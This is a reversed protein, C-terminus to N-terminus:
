HPPKGGAPPAHPAPRPGGAHPPPAPGAPARMAPAHTVAPHRAAFHSVAPHSAAFHSVTSRHVYAHSSVSAHHTYVRHSTSSHAAAYSTRGRNTYRSVQVSRRPAAIHVAIPHAIRERAAVAHGARVPTMGIKGRMLSRAAIARIPHGSLHAISRSSISRNAVFGHVTSYRTVNRTRAIFDVTQARPVLFRRFDTDTFHNGGVFVWLDAPGVQGGYWDRYGYFSPGWDAFVLGIGIGALFYADPPAPMWGVYGGGFRWDVWAPAWVYGPIWLWGMDPDFVWRGYHFAIDGWDYDADWYWGYDATYVWHGGDFYPRFDRGVGNPRWVDGWKPNHSWTGSAALRDHFTSFGVSASFQAAWGPATAAPTVMCLTAFLLLALLNRGIM